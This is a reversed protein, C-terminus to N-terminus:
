QKTFNESLLAEDRKMRAKLEEEQKATYSAVELDIAKQNKASVKRMETEVAQQHALRGSEYDDLERNLANANISVEAARLKAIHDFLKTFQAREDNTFEEANLRKVVDNRDLYDNISAVEKEIESAGLTEVDNTLVFGFIENTGAPNKKVIAAKENGINSSQVVRSEKVKDSSEALKEETRIAETDHSSTADSKSTIAAANHNKPAYLEFNVVVAVACAGILVTVAVLKTSKM